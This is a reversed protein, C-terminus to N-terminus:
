MYMYTHMYMHMHMHMYMHMYVYAYVYAYVYICMHIYIYVYQTPQRRRRELVGKLGLFLDQIGHSRGQWSALVQSPAIVTWILSPGSAASAIGRVTLALVDAAVAIVDRTAQPINTSYVQQHNM